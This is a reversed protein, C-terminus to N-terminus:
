VDWDVRGLAYVLPHGLFDCVDNPPLPLPLWHTLYVAEDNNVTTVAEKIGEVYGVLEGPRIYLDGCTDYALVWDTAAPQKESFKIWSSM